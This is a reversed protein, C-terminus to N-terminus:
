CISDSLRLNAVKKGQARWFSRKGPILEVATYKEGTLPLFSALKLSKKDEKKTWKKYNAKEYEKDPKNLWECAVEHLIQAQAEQNSMYRAFTKAYMGLLEDYTEQSFEVKKLVECIPRAGDCLKPWIM